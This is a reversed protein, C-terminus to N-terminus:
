TAAPGTGPPGSGSGSCRPPAVRGVVGGTGAPHLDGSFRPPEVQNSTPDLSAVLVEPRVPSHACNRGLLEHDAVDPSHDAAASAYDPGDARDGSVEADVGRYPTDEDLVHEGAEAWNELTAIGPRIGAGAPHFWIKPGNGGRFRLPFFWALTGLSGTRQSDARRGPLRSGKRKPAEWPDAEAEVPEYIVESVM